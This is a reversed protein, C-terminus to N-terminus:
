AVQPRDPRYELLAKELCVQVGQLWKIRSEWWIQDGSSVVVDMRTSWREAKALRRRRQTELNMDRLRAACVIIAGRVLEIMRPLDSPRCLAIKAHLEERVPPTTISALMWDRFHKIGVPTAEYVPVETGRGVTGRAVRTDLDVERVQGTRVLRKVTKAAMGSAFNASGFRDALLRQLQHCTSPREALLGLIIEPGFGDYVTATHAMRRWIRISQCEMQLIMGMILHNCVNSFLLEVAVFKRNGGLVFPSLAYGVTPSGHQAAAGAASPGSPPQGGVEGRWDSIIKLARPKADHLTYGGLLRWADDSRRREQAM